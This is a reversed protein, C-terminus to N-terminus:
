PSARAPPVVVAVAAVKAAAPPLARELPQAALDAGLATLTYKCERATREEAVLGAAVLQRLHWSVAGQHQDTALALRSQNSGPQAAVARLLRARSDLNLVSRALHRANAERGAAEMYVRKGRLRESRVMGHREMVRLHYAANTATTDLRRAIERLHLGPHERVLAMLQHRFANKFLNDRHVHRFGLVGAAVSLLGSLVLVGVSSLANRVDPPIENYWGDAGGFAQAAWAGLAAGFGERQEMDAGITQSGLGPAPAPASPVRPSSPSSGVPSTPGPRPIDRPIILVGEGVPAITAPLLPLAGAVPLTDPVISSTAGETPPASPEPVAAVPDEPVKDPVLRAVGDHLPAAPAAAEQAPAVDPQLVAGLDPLGLNPLDLGLGMAPSAAMLLGGMLAWLHIGM